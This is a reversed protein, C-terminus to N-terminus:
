KYELLQKHTIIYKKEAISMIDTDHTVYIISSDNKLKLEVLLNLISQSTTEDLNATPEDAFVVKPNKVLARAIAVRQRQGGSLQSPLKNGYDKLGVLELWQAVQETRQKLSQKLLVLPYEINESATLTSILNFTQFIFGFQSLRLNSLKHDSMQYINSNEFLVEGKDPKDLGSLLNLFTSKGSGSKGFIAIFKNQDISWSINELIVETNEVRDLSSSQNLYCYSKSFHKVKIM